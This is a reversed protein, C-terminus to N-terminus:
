DCNGGDCNPELPPNIQDEGPLNRSKVPAFGVSTSCIRRSNLFGGKRPKRLIQPMEFGEDRNSADGKLGAVAVSLWGAMNTRENDTLDPKNLAVIFKALMKVILTHGFELVELDDNVEAYARNAVVVVMDPCLCAGHILEYTQFMPIEDGCRYRALLREEAGEGGEIEEYQSLTVTGEAGDPFIVQEIDKWAYDKIVATDELQVTIKETRDEVTTGIIVVEQTCKADSRLMLCVGGDGGNCPCIDRELPSDHRRGLKLRPDCQSAGVGDYPLRWHPLIDVRRGDIAMLKVSITDSPLRFGRFSTACKACKRCFSQIVPCLTVDLDVGLERRNSFVYERIENLLRLQKERDRLGTAEGIAKLAKRVTITNKM